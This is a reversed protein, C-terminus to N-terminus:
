KHRPIAVVNVHSAPESLERTQSLQGKSVQDRGAEKAAYLAADARKFLSLYSEGSPWDAVGFSATCRLKKGRVGTDTEPLGARLREALLAASDLPCDWVLIGFEEGGLRGAIDNARLTRAILDGFGAIVADGKPHGWQDNVQKFHDIDAVILSLPVNEAAAKIALAEAEEEFARRIRLGSLMDTAARERQAELKDAFITGLLACSLMLCLLASIAMNVTLTVSSQYEGVSMQSQLLVTISPRFIAYAALAALAFMLFRDASHRSPGQWKSFAAIAFLLGANFNQAMILVPQVGNVQAFWVIVATAMSILVFVGIPMRLGDRKAVGWIMAILGTSSVAHFFIVKLPGFDSFVFAQMAIGVAVAVFWAAYALIYHKARDQWWLAIFAAAFLLTMGPIIFLLIQAQM